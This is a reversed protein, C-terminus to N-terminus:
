GNGGTVGKRRDKLWGAEGALWGINKNLFGARANWVSQEDNLLLFFAAGLFCGKMTNASDVVTDRICLIARGSFIVISLQLYSGCSVWEDKVRNQRADYRVKGKERIDAWDEETMSTAEGEMGELLLVELKAQGERRQIDAEILKCIYNSMDKYHGEAIRQEAFKKLHEPLSVTITEM